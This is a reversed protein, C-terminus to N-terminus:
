VRLQDDFNVFHDLQFRSSNICVHINLACNLTWCNLLKYSISDIAFSSSMAFFSYSSNENEIHNANESKNSKKKEKNVTKTERKLICNIILKMKEVTEAIKIKIIQVISLDSKWDSKKINFQICFCKMYRHFMECFCNSYKKENWKIVIFISKSEFNESSESHDCNDSCKHDSKENSKTNQNQLIVLTSHNIRKNTHDIQNFLTKVIRLHNRFKKLSDLIFSSSKEQQVEYNLITEKDVVFTVDVIRLANLFDYLCRDEQVDFTNLRITKAYMKEWNLLWHNLQQHKFARFLNKYKRVIELKNIRDISTLRKEFTFLKQFITAKNKFYLLNTWDISILVFLDLIKLAEIRKRYTRLLKKYDERLIILDHRKEFLLNISFTVDNVLNLFISFSSKSSENLEIIILNVFREIKDRKIITKIILFWEDWDNFNKFIMTFKQHSVVNFLSM